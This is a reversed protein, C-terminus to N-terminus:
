VVPVSVKDFQAQLSLAIYQTVALLEFDENQRHTHIVVIDAERKAMDVGCASLFEL